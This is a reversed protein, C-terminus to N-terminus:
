PAAFLAEDLAEAVLALEAELLEITELGAGSSGSDLRELQRCLGAARTAGINAAAGKLKHAARGLAEGGNAAAARIGELSPLIEGKFAQAAAPLLGRGDAPGLSRLTALRAPDLVPGALEPPLLAAVGALETGSEREAGRVTGVEAGRVASSGAPQVPRAGPKPASGKDAPVGGDSMKRPIWQALVSRLKLEDVPKSLYDDMGADLCRERDEDMAGATMAIIPIRPGNLTRARIIRTAEFGDLVPMHCDMLVADYHRVATAAVAEAGDSVVDV